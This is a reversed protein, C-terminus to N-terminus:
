YYISFVSDFIINHFRYSRCLPPLLGVEVPHLEKLEGYWSRTRPASGHEWIPVHCLRLFLNSANPPFIIWHRWAFSVDVSALKPFHRFFNEVPAGLPRTRQRGRWTGVSRLWVCYVGDCDSIHERVLACVSIYWWSDAFLQCANLLCTSGGCEMGSTQKAVTM